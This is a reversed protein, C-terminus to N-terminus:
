RIYELISESLNGRSSTRGRESNERGTKERHCDECLTQLNAPDFPHGGEAIPHIHDVELSRDHDYPDGYQNRLADRKAEWDEREDHYQSWDFDEAEGRGIDLVSPTKPKPPLQEDIRDQIHYHARRNRTQDYGCRQCTEDDRDIIRRRVKSWNLLGMVARQIGDCYESCVKARHDDVARGCIRCDTGRQVDGFVQQRTTTLNRDTM